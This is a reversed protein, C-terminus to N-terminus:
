SVKNKAAFDKSLQQMVEKHSAGKQSSKVKGFNEKVFMAFKNLTRPTSPTAPTQVGKKTNVLLQFPSSCIGCCKKTIDLSKSHRGIRYLFFSLKLM